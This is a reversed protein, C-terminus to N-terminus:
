GQADDGDDPHVKEGELDLRTREAKAAGVRGDIQVLDAALPEFGGRRDYTLVALGFPQNKELNGTGGGGVTGGNLELLNHSTRLASQHTHGTFIALPRPPPDRRLEEVALEALQPEHVLVIDVKGILPRLWDAFELQQEVTPRPEQQQRFGNRALREFPDSYGAVRVGGVNVVVRGHKGNPLVRGDQTLVIGGADALQGDLVDSDHNGSVYVFPHGIRVVRRLLRSEFPSGSSTLDGAFLLPGSRVARELAPLALLNNHLDSALTLHPLASIGQRGSTASVLRALGVLQQNLEQSITAASDNAREIARLAVPIDPGNAYYEPDSIEGRPPLLLALMLTGGVATAGAALFLWRMRPAGHGRVALAVVVAAGLSCVFVLLLLLRIYSALADRAERRVKQVDPLQGAAVRRAADRDVTRVDISVRAPARVAPFRAGWDVLPVYIDLAGTHFPQVSLEIRGVSLERESSFTALALLGGGLGAAVVLAVAAVRRVTTVNM